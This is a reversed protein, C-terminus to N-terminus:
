AGRPETLSTLHTECIDFTHVEGLHLVGLAAHSPLACGELACQERYELPDTHPKYALAIATGVLGVRRTPGLSGM